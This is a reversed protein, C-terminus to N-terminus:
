IAKDVVAMTGTYRACLKGEAWVDAQTVILARGTKVIEGRCALVDGTGPRMLHINFDATLVSQRGKIATSAAAGATHDALTSVVGAHAFGHQQRMRAVVHLESEVWGEGADVLRIGLDIVFPARSFVSEARERATSMISSALSTHRSPGLNWMEGSPTLGGTVEASYWSSTLNRGSAPLSM